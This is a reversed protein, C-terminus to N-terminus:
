ASYPTPELSRLDCPPVAPLPLPAWVLGRYALRVALSVARVCGSVAFVGPRSPAAWGLFLLPERGCLDMRAALCALARGSIRQLSHAGGLRGPVFYPPVQRELEDERLGAAELALGKKIM